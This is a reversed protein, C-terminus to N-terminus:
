KGTELQSLLGPGHTRKYTSVSEGLVTPQLSWQKGHTTKLRSDSTLPLPCQRLLQPQCGPIRDGNVGWGLVYRHHGSSTVTPNNGGWGGERKWPWNKTVLHFGQIELAQKELSWRASGHRPHAQHRPSCPPSGLSSAGGSCLLPSM